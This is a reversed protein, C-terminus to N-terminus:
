VDNAAFQELRAVAEARDNVRAADLATTGRDDAITPDIGPLGLLYDQWSQLSKSTNNSVIRSLDEEQMTM